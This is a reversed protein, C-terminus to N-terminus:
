TYSDDFADIRHVDRQQDDGVRGGSAPPSKETHTLGSAQAQGSQGLRVAPTHLSGSYAIQSLTRVVEALDRIQKQQLSIQENYDNMADILRSLKDTILVISQQMDEITHNTLTIFEAFKRLETNMHNRLDDVGM